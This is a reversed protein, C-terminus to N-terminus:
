YNVIMVFIEIGVRINILGIDFMLIFLKIVKLMMNFNLFGVFGFIDLLFM